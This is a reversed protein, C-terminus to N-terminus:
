VQLLIPESQTQDTVPMLKIVRTNNTQVIGGKFRKDIIIMRGVIIIGGEFVRRVIMGEVITVEGVVTEAITIIIGVIIEGTIVMEKTKGEIIELIMIEGLISMKVETIM